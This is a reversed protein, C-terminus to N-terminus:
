EHKLTEWKFSFNKEQLHNTKSQDRREREKAGMFKMILEVVVRENSM